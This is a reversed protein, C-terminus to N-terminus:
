AGSSIASSGSVAAASRQRSAVCLRSQTLHAAPARKGLLPAGSRAAAAACRGSFACLALWLGGVRAPLLAPRTARPASACSIFM